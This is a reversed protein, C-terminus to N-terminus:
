VLSVFLNGKKGEGADFLFTREPLRLATCSHGRKSVSGGGTGALILQPGCLQRPKEISNFALDPTFPNIKDDDNNNGSHNPGTSYQEVPVVSSPYFTIKQNQLMHPISSVGRWGSSHDWKWEIERVRARATVDKLISSIGKCRRVARYFQYLIM